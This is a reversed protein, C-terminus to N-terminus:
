GQDEWEARRSLHDYDGDFALFSPRGRAVFAGETAFHRLLQRLQDLFAEGEALHEPKLRTETGGEGAKGTLGLYVGASVPRAGAKAFGGAELMAAEIRIQLQKGGDVDTLSPPKGSKYDYIAGSGDALLDIRDARATLTVAGAGLDFPLRGDTETLTVPREARRVAEGDLLWDAFRAVRARWLRRLDPWPAADALVESALTDILARAEERKPLGDGTARVFRNLVEHLAEGREAAAAPRGLPDLPKLDLVRRAYVAYPDAVLRGVDTLSLTSPRVEAPPAPAPRPAPATDGSRALGRALALLRAGRDRMDTLASTEPLGDMLGTLRSLWRSPVVPAGDRRASRTLVVRPRLAAHAFDHASLGIRAEPPALDLKARQPRSLWPEAGPLAPWIGESLGALIVIETPHTRAERPGLIAVRPHPAAPDPRLTEATLVADLLEPYAEVRGDGHADAARSLSRMASHAAAGAEAQWVTPEEEPGTRSLDEVAAIHAEVLEALAAHRSMAARLPALAAEIAALWAQADETGGRREPWPPLLGADSRAVLPAKRLVAREYRRALALHRGRTMGPQMLPSQLLGAMTVPTAGGATIKAVLRLFVGPPADRLPRGLSDDPLVSFRGLESSVRRALSADPTVLAIRVAPEELAERITVAIAAAEERPHEAEILTLGAAAEGAEAGLETAAARWADTVPAPRLAEALLRHRAPVPVATEDWPAVDAPRCGIAMLLPAFPAMPHEPAEGAAIHEWVDGPLAPDLGPLVIAGQPLRSIATLLLRTSPVSGTSGAAIVPADPPAEAWHAARALVAARQRAKPDPADGEEQRRIEPWAQRLLDVFRLTREWHHAQEDTELGDLADAPLGADDLEDLLDALSDALAPAAALAGQGESRALYREVLRVLHLRRRLPDVPAALEPAALPDRGLDPMVSLRPLLASGGATEALAEEIRRWARPTNAFVEISLPALPDDGFRRWFGTAFATAFEVGLPVTYLGSM